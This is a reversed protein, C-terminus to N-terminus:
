SNSLQAKTDALEKELVKIEDLLRLVIEADQASSGIDRKGFAYIVGAARRLAEKDLKRRM